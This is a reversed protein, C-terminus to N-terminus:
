SVDALGACYRAPDIVDDSFASQVAYGIMAGALATGVASARRAPVWRKAAAAHLDRQRAASEAVVARAAPRTQAFAWGQIALRFLDVGEIHFRFAALSDLVERLYRAPSSVQPDAGVITLLAEVEVMSTSIAARILEDKSGFYRYMAGASVGAELRIQEMTAAEIGVRSCCRRAADLFRQEQAARHEDSVKPMVVVMRSYVNV